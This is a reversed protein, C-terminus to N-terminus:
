DALIHPVFESLNTIVGRERRFGIACGEGAWFVGAQYKRGQADTPLDAWRQRVQPQQDYEGPVSSTLRGNDVEAVNQGERGLLPKRVFHGSLDEMAAELLLPHHPFVQWLWALIGKSQFLLTYAPNAIIVDRSQLLQVLDATLEPEEDALIEWPVLKFMFGFRQWQEDEIQAWVGREEGTVSVQMADVPCLHVAAFGAERAAEAVVACNTEDEASGPLHVLLLSPDLDPNLERWERLQGELGEFLGNAQRQEDKHGAAVLSAWQVVATEPLSTATDANFEILKPGEPTSALDFRGYLHWHREDNWSHRVAGWLNQPIALLQLLDDPIPDPIAQVLMDYLTDAANLLEEAQRETLQVAETALYAACADEVAWDWGLARIAPTVDGSLPLLRIM